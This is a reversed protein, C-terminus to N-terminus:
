RFETREIRLRASRPNETTAEVVVTTFSLRRNFPLLVTGDMEVDHVELDIGEAAIRELMLIVMTQVSDGADTTPQVYRLTNGPYGLVDPPLTSIDIFFEDITGSKIKIPARKILSGASFQFYSEKIQFGQAGQLAFVDKADVSAWGIEVDKIQWKWPTMTELVHITGSRRLDESLVLIAILTALAAGTALTLAILFKLIRKM